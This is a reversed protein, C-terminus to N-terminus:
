RSTEKPHDSRAEAIRRERGQIRAQRGDETRRRASGAPRYEVPRPKEPELRRARASECQAQRETRRQQETLPFTLHNPRDMSPTHAFSCTSHRSMSQQKRQQEGHYEDCAAGRRWLLSVIATRPAVFINKISAPCLRVVPRRGITRGVVAVRVETRAVVTRRVVSQRVVGRVGGVEATMAGTVPGTMPNRMPDTMACPMATTMTSPVVSRRDRGKARRVFGAPAFRSAATLAPM